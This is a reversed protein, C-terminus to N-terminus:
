PHAALVDLKHFYCRIRQILRFFGKQQATLDLASDININIHDRWRSWRYRDIQKNEDRKAECIQDNWKSPILMAAKM